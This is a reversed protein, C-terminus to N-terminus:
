ESGIVIRSGLATALPQSVKGGALAARLAEQCRLLLLLKTLM